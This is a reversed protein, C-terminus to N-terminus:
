MAEWAADRQATTIDKGYYEKLTDLRPLGRATLPNSEKDMMDKLAAILEASAGDIPEDVVATIQVPTPEPHAGILEAGAALAADVLSDDIDIPRRSPIYGREVGNTFRIGLRSFLLAM